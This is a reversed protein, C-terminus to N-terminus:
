KVGKSMWFNEFYIIFEESFEIATAEARIIQFGEWVKNALLLALSCFKKFNKKTEQCRKMKLVLNPTKCASKRLAQTFHFYCGNVCDLPLGYIDLSDKIAKEYDSM